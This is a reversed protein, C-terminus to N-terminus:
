PQYTGLSALTPARNLATHVSVCSWTSFRDISDQSLSKWHDKLFCILPKWSKSLCFYDERNMINPHLEIETVERFIYDMYRPKNSLINTNHLQIHYGLSINHEVMAASSSNKPWIHWHYQKFWTDTSCGTQGNYVLYQM